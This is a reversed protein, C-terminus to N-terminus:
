CTSATPINGHLIALRISGKGIVQTIKFTM